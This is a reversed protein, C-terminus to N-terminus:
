FCFVQDPLKSVPRAKEYGLEVLGKKMAGVMPPPGCVLIKVDDAPAPLRTQSHDASRMNISLLM